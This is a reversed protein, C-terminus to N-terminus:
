NAKSAAAVDHKFSAHQLTVLAMRILVFLSIHLHSRHSNQNCKSQQCSDKGQHVDLSLQATLKV